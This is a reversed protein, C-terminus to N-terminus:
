RIRRNLPVRGAGSLEQPDLPKAGLNLQPIYLLLSNSGNAQYGVTGDATSAYVVVTNAAVGTGVYSFSIRYWGNGVSTITGTGGAMSGLVGNHVDYWGAQAGGSAGLAVWSRSGEKVFVSFTAQVGVLSSGGIVQAVDHQVAGVSSDETLFWSDNLGDVPNAGANPHATANVPAV